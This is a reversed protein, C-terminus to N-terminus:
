LKRKLCKFKNINVTLNRLRRAELSDAAASGTIVGPRDKTHVPTIIVDRPKIRLRVTVRLTMRCDPKKNSIVQFVVSNYNVYDM